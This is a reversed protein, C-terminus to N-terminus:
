GEPMGLPDWDRDIRHLYDEVEEASFHGQDVVAAATLRPSAPTGADTRRIAEITLARALNDGFDQAIIQSLEGNLIGPAYVAIATLLDEHEARTGRLTTM